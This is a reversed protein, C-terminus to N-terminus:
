PAANSAAITAQVRAWDQPIQTPIRQLAMGESNVTGAPGVLSRLTGMDVSDLVLGSSHRLEIESDVAMGGLGAGTVVLFGTPPITGTLTFSAPMGATDTYHLSLGPPATQTPSANFIEIWQDGIPDPPANGVVDNFPISDGGSSDDWDQLPQEVIESIVLVAGGVPPQNVVEVTAPNSVFGDKSATITTQGVNNATATGDVAISAVGFASSQWLADDVTAGVTGSCLRLATFTQTAGVQLTAASPNIRIGDMAVATVLVAPSTVNALTATINSAGSNRLVLQGSPGIVAVSSDTTAWTALSTADFTSGDSSHATAILQVVDGICGSVSTPAISISQLDRVELSATDSLGDLSATITATGTGVGTTLGDVGVIAVAPLNSTWFAIDSVDDFNGDDYEAIAQFSVSAGVVTTDSPPIVDIGILNRDVVDLVALDMEGKYEAQVDVTGEAFGVAIGFPNVFAVSANTSGWATNATVDISTGNDYQAMAVYQKSGGVSMTHPDPQIEIGTLNAPTVIIKGIHLDSGLLLNGATMLVPTEGVRDVHIVRAEFPNGTLVNNVIAIFPNTIYTVMSNPLPIRIRLSNKGLKIGSGTVEVKLDMHVLWDSGPPPLDRPFHGSISFSACASTEGPTLAAVFECVDTYGSPISITIDSEILTIDALARIPVGPLKDDDVHIVVLPPELQVFKILPLVWVFASDSKKALGLAGLDLTATAVTVGPAGASVKGTLVPTNSISAVNPDTSKFDLFQTGIQLLLIDALELIIKVKPAAPAAGTTVVSLIMREIADFVERYSITHQGLYEFTVNKLRFLGTSALFTGGDSALIMPVNKKFASIAAGLATEIGPISNLASEPDIEISKLDFGALVVTFNSPEDLHVARVVQFGASSVTMNGSSNITLNALQLDVGLATILDNLAGNVITAVRPDSLLNQDGVAGIWEYHTDPDTTVDTVTGNDEERTVELQRSFSTDPSVVIGPRLHVVPVVNVDITDTAAAGSDATYTAKVTTMGLELGEIEADSFGPGSFQSNIAVVTSDDSTWFFSGPDPGGNADLAMTDGSRLELPGSQNINVTVPQAGGIPPSGPTAHWGGKIIGVGPDSEIITGDRAVSGTGISVFRGVDHDFSMLELVRGAPLGLVNPFTVAAPPDFTVGPPQITVVFDPQQGLNPVMPVKDNHVYTVSVTGERDGNPFRTSDESINLSFGPYEDLTIIASQTRSVFASSGRDLRVLYVPRGLDNDVGAVTVMEFELVPWEGERSTTTGDIEMFIQGVSVNSVFFQGNEDTQATALDPIVTITVGPLPMDSNDVVIGSVSTLEPDNGTMASAVFTAPFDGDALVVDVRNNEIGTSPGLVLIAHARGDADTPTVLESSGGFSGGGEVVRFTVNVNALRNDGDDTVVVSLPAPLPQGAAATQNNGADILLKSAVGATASALFTAPDTVGVARAEVRQNGVGAHTGAQFMASVRGSADTTRAVSRKGDLLGDGQVVRFIVSEGELPAGTDDLLEAVLPQPLMTGVAGSQGSGSAIRVTKQDVIAHYIVEIYQYGQNGVRDYALVEVDNYGEELPLGALFFCGNMVQAELDNVTVTMEDSGVSGIVLDHVSGSVDVSPTTSVFGYEPSRITVTPENYDVTVSVSATNAHGISGIAVCAIISVGENLNVLTSFSTGDIDATRGNCSVSIADTVTGVVDFRSDNQATLPAPSDITISPIACTPCALAVPQGIAFKLVTLADSAVVLGSDDPDCLCVDCSALGVAARLVFLADTAVPSDGTSSPQGCDLRAAEASGTAFVAV